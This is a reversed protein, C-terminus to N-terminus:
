TEGKNKTTLLPTNSEAQSGSMPEFSDFKETLDIPVFTRLSEDETVVTWLTITDENEQINIEFVLVAFKKM